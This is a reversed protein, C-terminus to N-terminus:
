LTDVMLAFRTRLKYVLCSIKDITLSKIQLKIAEIDKRETIDAVIMICKNGYSIIENYVEQLKKKNRAIIIVNYNEKALKISVFKGIGKSAGTIIAYRSM